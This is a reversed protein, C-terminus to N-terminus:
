LKKTLSSGPGTRSISGDSRVIPDSTVVEGEPVEHGGHADAGRALYLSLVAALRLLGLMKM